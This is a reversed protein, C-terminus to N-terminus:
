TKRRFIKNKFKKMNSKKFNFNEFLKVQKYISKKSNSNLRTDSSAKAQKPVRFDM